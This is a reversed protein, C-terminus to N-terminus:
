PQSTIAGTGLLGGECATRQDRWSIRLIDEELSELGGAELELGEMGDGGLLGRPDHSPSSKAGGGHDHDCSLGSEELVGQAPWRAM